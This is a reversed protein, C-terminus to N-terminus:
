AGIVLPSALQRVTKAVAMAVLRGTKPNDDTPIIEERFTFRGFHGEAEIEVVHVTIGPDAVIVLRTRDLGIGALAAAASINVNQPYARAGERVPGDHLVFPATLGDLDVQREAITGKWSLPDKRVTVTVRDLGGVAGAALIDLAGIGASPLILRRGSDSAAQQLRAFLADDTLAGVSTLLLDAGARLAREGHDRVAQHGAGEVVADFGAAFFRDPDHTLGPVGSDPRPRRVLVAAAEIPGLTGTGIRELLDRGIAGLGILGIRYTRTM